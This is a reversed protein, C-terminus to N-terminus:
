QLFNRYFSKKIESNKKINIMGDIKLKVAGAELFEGTNEWANSADLGFFAFFKEIGSGYKPMVMGGMKNWVSVAFDKFNVENSEAFKERLSFNIKFFHFNQSYNM